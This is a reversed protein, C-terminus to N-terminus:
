APFEVRVEGLRGFDAVVTAGAYAFICGMLSGTTVVNGSRLGGTRGAAHNVLATLLRLPDGGTNGVTEIAVKGDFRVTVPVRALDLGLDRWEAIPAGTVLAANSQNDAQKSLPDTAQFDAFRTDVLEIVPHMAAVAAVVEDPDYPRGRAPLDRAFRFAVEAEIGFLRQSAAPFRAPSAIVEFIPAYAPEATPTPAGTKWAVITGLHPAVIDQVAYAEALSRPRCDAPLDAIATGTRRATLLLDAARRARDDTM